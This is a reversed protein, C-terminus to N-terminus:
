YPLKTNELKPFQNICKYLLSLRVPIEKKAMGGMMHSIPKHIKNLSLPVSAVRDRTLVVSHQVGLLSSTSSGGNHIHPVSSIASPSM